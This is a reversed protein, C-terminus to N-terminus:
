RVDDARKMRLRRWFRFLQDSRVEDVATVKVFVERGTALSVVWPQSGRADGPHPELSVAPLHVVALADALETRGIRRAPTGFLLAAVAGVAGGAFVAMVRAALSVDAGLVGLIILSVIVVSAWRTLPAAFVSFSAATVAVGAAAVAILWEETTVTGPSTGGIRAAALVVGVTGAAAVLSTTAQRIQRASVAAVLSLVLTLTAAVVAAADGFRGVGAAWSGLGTNLDRELGEHASPLLEGLGAVAAIALVCVILRIVARASREYRIGSGDDQPEREVLSGGARRLGDTVQRLMGPDVADRRELAAPSGLSGGLSEDAV